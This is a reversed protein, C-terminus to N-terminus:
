PCERATGDRRPDAAGMWKGEQRAIAHVGGFFANKSGMKLNASPEKMQLDLDLLRRELNANGEELWVTADLAHVRPRRVAQQIDFHHTWYDIIQAVTSIIRKSGPSGIVLVDRGDKRVITPSMSSYAPKQPRIAYFHDPEDFIFDTMYSNYLFGLKPSAARSGFYANISATVAISLGAGDVVSYHTTEGNDEETSESKSKLATAATLHQVRNDFEKQYDPHVLPDRARTEHAQHLSIITNIQHQLSDGEAASQHEMLKLAYLMTAGGAPPPATYIHYSDLTSTLAPREQPDPFQKLDELTIWGGNLQMDRAIEEAISGQYFEEAGKESLLRLTRALIPQKITDGSVPIDQAGNLWQRLAPGGEILYHGYRQYVKARFEGVVFGQEAVEVSPAILEAWSLNGSGYNQHLYAMTKVMSPITSKTYPTLAARSITSDTATPALTTGNISVPAEGSRSLIIQCGGGLGSMAPETVGLMFSIAVAADAANGGSNLVAIGVETAEPSATSVVGRCEEQPEAPRCSLAVAWLFYLLKRM